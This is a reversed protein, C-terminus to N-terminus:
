RRAPSAFITEVEAVGQARAARVVQDHVAAADVPM